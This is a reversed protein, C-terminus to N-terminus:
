PRIRVFIRGQVDSAMGDVEAERDDSEYEDHRIPCVAAPFIALSISTLSIVAQLTQSIFFSLAQSVPMWVETISGLSPFLVCNQLYQCPVAM